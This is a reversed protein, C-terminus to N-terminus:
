SARFRPEHLQLDGRRAAVPERGARETSACGVVHDCDLEASDGAQDRRDDALLRGVVCTQIRCPSAGANTLDSPGINSPPGIQRM